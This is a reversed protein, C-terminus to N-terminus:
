GGSASGPDARADGIPSPAAPATPRVSVIRRRAALRGITWLIKAGARVTGSVTGTIKSVGVRRRYSVPVEAYPLGRRAAKAEWDFVPDALAIVLLALLLLQLLLSSLHRLREWLSRPAKEEYVKEWFMLTSVPIRRVRVKLVYFVVVPIALLGWWLMMPAAFSM